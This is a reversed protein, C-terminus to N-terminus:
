SADSSRALVYGAEGLKNLFEAFIHTPAGTFWDGGRIEMAARCLAITDDGCPVKELTTRECKCGM